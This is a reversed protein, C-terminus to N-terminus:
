AESLALAHEGRLRPHVADQIFRDVILQTNGAYAPIFRRIAGPAELVKRTGRTPPSSGYMRRACITIM